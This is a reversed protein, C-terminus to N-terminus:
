GFLFKVWGRSQLSPQRGILGDLGWIHGFGGSAFLIFIGIIIIHQDIFGHATNTTFGAFYYLAMLLIGFLAAPRVLLGVLLGLGILFLGYMNFADVIGNGALSQFWSAFPGTSASLFSAASWSGAVIKSWGANLFFLGTILRLLFVAGSFFEHSTAHTFQTFSTAQPM